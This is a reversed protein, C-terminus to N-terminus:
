NSRSGNSGTFSGGSRSNGGGGGAAGGGRQPAYGAMLQEYAILARDSGVAGGGVHTDRGVTIADASMGADILGERVAAVRSAYLEDPADGRIIVIPAAAAAAGGDRSADVLTAVRRAGLRNLVATGPEFDKPYVAREAAIGNYVNEALALRVLLRNHEVLDASEDVRVDKENDSKCGGGLAAAAALAAATAWTWTKGNANMRKM